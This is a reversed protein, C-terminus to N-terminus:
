LKITESFEQSASRVVFTLERSPTKSVDFKKIMKSKDAFTDDHLKENYENYIAIEVEGDCASNLNLTVIDKEKTLIPRKIEVISPASVFANQNTIKIQYTTVKLNSEMKFTYDGEPLATLDYTSFKNKVTKVRQEFIIEDSASYLTLDIAQTDNTIFSVWKSNEKAVKVLIEMDDAHAVSATLLAVVALSIKFFKKM